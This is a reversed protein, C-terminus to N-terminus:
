WPAWFWLAVDKGALESGTIQGGGVADVTGFPADGSAETAGSSREATAPGCGVMVIAVVCIAALRRM